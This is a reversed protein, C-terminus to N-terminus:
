LACQGIYAGRCARLRGNELNFLCCGQAKLLFFEFTYKMDLARVSHRKGDQPGTANTCSADGTRGRTRIYLEICEDLM